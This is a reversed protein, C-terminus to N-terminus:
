IRNRHKLGPKRNRRLRMCWGYKKASRSPMCLGTLMKGSKVAIEFVGAGLGKMPKSLSSTDGQGAVILADLIKDKAVEPFTKFDKAAGKFWVIERLAKLM